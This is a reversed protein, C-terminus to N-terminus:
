NLKIGPPAGTRGRVYTKQTSAYHIELMDIELGHVLAGALDTLMALLENEKLTSAGRILVGEFAGKSAFEQNSFSLAPFRIGNLSEPLPEKRESRMRLWAKIIAGVEKSSSNTEGSKQIPCIIVWSLPPTAAPNAAPATDSM